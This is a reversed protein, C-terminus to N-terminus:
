GQKRHRWIMRKRLIDAPSPKHGGMVSSISGAVCEIKDVRRRDERQVVRRRVGALSCCLKPGILWRLRGLGEYLQAYFYVAGSQLDSVKFCGEGGTILGDCQWAHLRVPLRRLAARRPAMEDSKDAIRGCGPRGYAIADAWM